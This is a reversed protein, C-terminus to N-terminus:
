NQVTPKIIKFLEALMDPDVWALVPQSRRPSPTVEELMQEEYHEWTPLEEPKDMKVLIVM